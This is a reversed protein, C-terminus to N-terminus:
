YAINSRHSQYIYTISGDNCSVVSHGLLFKKQLINFDNLVNTGKFIICPNLVPYGFM